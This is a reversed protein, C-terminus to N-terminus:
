VDGNAKREFYFLIIMKFFIDRDRNVKYLDESYGLLRALSHITVLDYRLCFLKNYSKLYQRWIENRVKVREHRLDQDYLFWGM